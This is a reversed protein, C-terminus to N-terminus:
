DSAAVCFTYRCNPCTQEGEVWHTTPIGPSGYVGGGTSKFWPARYFEFEHNCWPCHGEQGAAEPNLLTRDRLHRLFGIIRHLLWM